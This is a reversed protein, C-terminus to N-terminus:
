LTKQFCVYTHQFVRMSYTPMYRGSKLNQKQFSTDKQRKKEYVSIVTLERYIGM